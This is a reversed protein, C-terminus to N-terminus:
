TKKMALVSKTKEKSKAKLTELLTCKITELERIYDEYEECSENSKLSEILNENVEDVQKFCECVEEYLVQLTETSDGRGQAEKFLGVKRNFRRKATARDKKLQEM